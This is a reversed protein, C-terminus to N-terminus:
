SPCAGYRLDAASLGMTLLLICFGQHGPKGPVDRIAYPGTDGGDTLSLCPCLGVRACRQADTMKDTCERIAM